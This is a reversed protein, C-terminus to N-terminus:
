AAEPQAAQPPASPMAPPQGQGQQGAFMRAMAAMPAGQSKNKAAQLMAGVELQPNEGAKKAGASLEQIVKAVKNHEETGFPILPLAEQLLEVANKVKVLAAHINGANGQPQAMSGANAPSQTLPTPLGGAPPLNM